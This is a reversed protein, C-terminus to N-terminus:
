ESRNPLSRLADIRRHMAFKLYFRLHIAVDSREGSHCDPSNIATMM